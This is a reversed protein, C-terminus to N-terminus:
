IVVKTKIKDRNRKSSNTLRVVQLEAVALRHMNDGLQDLLKNNEVRLSEIDKSNKYQEYTKNLSDLRKNETYLSVIENKLTEITEELKTITNRLNENEQSIENSTGIGKTKLLAYVMSLEEQLQEVSKEIHTQPTNKITKVRKGFELTCISEDINDIHPSINIILSTKSNGGLSSQLLRTLKSTRYPIHGNTNNEQNSCIGNIVQSLMTLSLNILSGQKLIEGSAGTKSARESGALDVLNLQSIKIGSSTTQKMYITLISHSRSSNDNMKTSAIKRVTNGRSIIDYIDDVSSISERTLGDVYVEKNYKEKIQLNTNKINLLDNIREMFIELYSVEIEFCSGSPYKNILEFILNASRPIIGIDETDLVGMLTYTKGSSTM